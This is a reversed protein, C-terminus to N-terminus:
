LKVKSSILKCLEEMRTQPVTLKDAGFNMESVNNIPILHIHAHPVELGVVSLGVKTCPVIEKIAVSVKKSFIILEALAKDDMNFIYDVEQKPIVLAHGEKLPSIDLFALYKEDEALRYCPIDGNIIQTFVSAM